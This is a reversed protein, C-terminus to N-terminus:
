ALRCSGTPPKAVSGGPRPCKMGLAAGYHQVAFVVDTSSLRRGVGSAPPDALSPRAPRVSSAASCAGLQPQPGTRSWRAANRWAPPAPSPAPSSCCTTAGGRSVLCRAFDTRLPRGGVRARRGAGTMLSSVDLPRVEARAPGRHHATGSLMARQQSVTVAPIAHCCCPALWPQGSPEGLGRAKRIIWLRM